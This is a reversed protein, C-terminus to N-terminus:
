FNKQTVSDILVVVWIGNRKELVYVLKILSENKNKSEFIVKASNRRKIQYIDFNDYGFHNSFRKDKSLNYFFDIKAKWDVEPQESGVSSYVSKVDIYKQAIKYNKCQEAENLKVISLFPSDVKKQVCCSPFNFSMVFFIMCIYEKIKNVMINLFHNPRM